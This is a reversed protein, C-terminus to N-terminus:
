FLPQPNPNATLALCSKLAFQLNEYAPQCAPDLALARLNALVAAPFQGARLHTVGRNFHFIALLQERALVRGSTARRRHTAMAASVRPTPVGAYREDIAFWDPCTTEVAFAGPTLSTEIVRCWVHGPVSLVQVELGCRAALVSFLASAAACNFPGGDLAVGLGSASPDYHGRLVHRHLFAHIARARARADGAQDDLGRLTQALEDLRRAYHDLADARVGSAALLARDSTAARADDIGSALLALWLAALLEFRLPRLM